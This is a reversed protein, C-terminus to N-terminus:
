KKDKRQEITEKQFYYISFIILISITFFILLSMWSPLLKYVEIVGLKSVSIGLIFGVAVGLAIFICKQFIDIIFGVGDLIMKNSCELKIKHKKSILRLKEVGIREGKRL